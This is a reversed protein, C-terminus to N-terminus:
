KVTLDLSKFIEGCIIDGTNHFGLSTYLKDAVSNEPKHCITITQCDKKSKLIDIVQLM